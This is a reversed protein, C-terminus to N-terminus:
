EDYPIVSTLDKAQDLALRSISCHPQVLEDVVYSMFGPKRTVLKRKKIM